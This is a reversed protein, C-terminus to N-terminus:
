NIKDRFKSSKIEPERNNVRKIDKRRKKCTPFM